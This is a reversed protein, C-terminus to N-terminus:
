AVAGRRLQFRTRALTTTPTSAPLPAVDAAVVMLNFLALDLSTTVGSVAGFTGLHRVAAQTTASGQSASPGKSQLSITSSAAALVRSTTMM